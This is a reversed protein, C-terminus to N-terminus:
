LWRKGNMIPNDYGVKRTGTLSNRALHRGACEKCEPETASPCLIRALGYPPCASRLGGADDRIRRALEAFTGLKGARGAVAGNADCRETVM